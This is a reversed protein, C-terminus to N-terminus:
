QIPGKLRSSALKQGLQRRLTEKDTTTSAATSSLRQGVGDTETEGAIDKAGARIRRMNEKRWSRLATELATQLEDVRSGITLNSPNRRSFSAYMIYSVVGGSTAGGLVGLLLLFFTADPM